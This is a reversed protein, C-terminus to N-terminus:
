VAKARQVALDDVDGGRCDGLLSALRAKALRWPPRLHPALPALRARDVGFSRKEPSRTARRFRSSFRCRSGAGSGRCSGDGDFDAGVGRRTM